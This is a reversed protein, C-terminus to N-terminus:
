TGYDNDDVKRKTSVDDNGLEYIDNEPETSARPLASCSAPAPFNFFYKM